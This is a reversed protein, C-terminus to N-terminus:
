KLILVHLEDAEKKTLLINSLGETLLNNEIAAKYRQPLHECDGVPYTTKNILLNFNEPKLCNLEIEPFGNPFGLAKFNLNNRQYPNLNSQVRM